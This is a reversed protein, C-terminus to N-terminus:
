EGMMMNYHQIQGMKDFILKMTDRYTEPNASDLVLNFGDIFGASNDIYALMSSALHYKSPNPTGDPNKDMFDAKHEKLIKDRVGNGQYGCLEMFYYELIRRIVNLLPITSKLEKFETWLATYSNQVPNINRDKQSIEKAKEECISISSVNDNKRIMYFSVTDYYEVQNYTIERHFYANHTLIFIQKIFDGKVEPNLYEVNNHCVNIMDRVMASVMFLTGSDMSSVPDDIIVIKDRNDTVDEISGDAGIIAADAQGSGYVLNYFYLFAIFNREGESLKKARVGGERIVEYTNKQDARPRLKFGQFGSDEIMKNINKYAAETDVTVASKKKIEEEKTHYDAFKQKKKAEIDSKRKDVEAVQTQYDAYEDKILFALHEWLARDLKAKTTKIDAVGQNNAEIQENFTKILADIETLLEDIDDIEQISAPNKTKSTINSVNAKIIAKLESLKADYLTWDIRSFACQRNADLIAVIDNTKSIYASLLAEVAKTNNQYQEDFCSAIDQEFTHPIDQQCFPCKGEADRVYKAHGEKVWDSAEAGLKKLFKAFTTNSSSIIPEGLLEMASFDYRGYIDDSYKLKPYTTATKDFAAAFLQRLEEIEHEVPNKTIVVPCFKGKQLYGKLADKFEDMVSKCLKMMVDQSKSLILSKEKDAGDLEENLKGIEGLIADADKKLQAVEKQTKVNVEGMTFVGTVNGFDSFNENIFDQDYILVNYKDRDMGTKWQAGDGDFLARAVTSKGAGNRGFFFNIYTPEFTENTYTPANIVMKEIASRRKEM